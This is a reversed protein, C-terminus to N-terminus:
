AEKDIADYCDNPTSCYGKAITSDCIRIKNSKMIKTAFAYAEKDLQAIPPDSCMDQYQHKCEHIFTNMLKMFQRCSGCAATKTNILSKGHCLCTMGTLGDVSPDSPTYVGATADWCNNWISTDPYTNIWVAKNLVDRVDNICKQQKASPPTMGNERLFDNVKQRCIVELCVFYGIVAIPIILLKVVSLGSPDVLILPNNHCYTYTPAHPPYDRSLFM